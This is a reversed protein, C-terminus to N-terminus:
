RFRPEFVRSATRRIQRLQKRADREVLGRVFRGSHAKQVRSVADGLCTRVVFAGLAQGFETMLQHELEARQREVDLPVGRHDPAAVILRDAFATATSMSEVTPALSPVFFQRQDKM